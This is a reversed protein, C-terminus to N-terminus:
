VANDFNADKAGHSAQATTSAKVNSGSSSSNSSSEGGSGTSTLSSSSSTPGCRVIGYRSAASTMKRTERSALKKADRVSEYIGVLSALIFVIGMCAISIFAITQGVGDSTHFTEDSEAKATQMLVPVTIQAVLSFAALFPLVVNLAAHAPSSSPLFIVTLAIGLFLIACIGASYYFGHASTLTFTKPTVGILQGIPSAVFDNYGDKFTHQDHPHPTHPTLKIKGESCLFIYM